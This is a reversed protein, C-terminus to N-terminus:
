YDSPLIATSAERRGNDDVAETIIWIKEGTKLLYASLLRSGDKLSENNSEADEADVIGWDGAIHRAMFEWINQGARELEHICAPSALISGPKFLPTAVAIM